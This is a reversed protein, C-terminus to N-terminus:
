FNFSLSWYGVGMEPSGLVMFSGHGDCTLALGLWEVCCFVVFGLWTSPCFVCSITQSRKAISM